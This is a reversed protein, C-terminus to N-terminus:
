AQASSEEEQEAGRLSGLAALQGNRRNVYSQEELKRLPSYGAGGNCVM